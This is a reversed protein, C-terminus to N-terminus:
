GSFKTFEKNRAIRIAKNIAKHAEKIRKRVAKGKEFYRVTASVLLGHFKIVVYPIRGKNFAFLFFM